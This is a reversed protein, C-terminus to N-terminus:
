LICKCFTECTEKARENYVIAIQKLRDAMAEDKFIDDLRHLLEEKTFSEREPNLSIPNDGQEEPPVPFNFGVGSRQVAYGNDYQDGFFPLVLLPVGLSLGENTSGAGGHTM